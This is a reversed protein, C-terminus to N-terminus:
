EPGSEFEYGYYEFIPRDKEYVLQRLEDDYYSSYHGHPSANQRNLGAIAEALADPVECCEGLMRALDERMHEMRGTSVGDFGPGLAQLLQQFFPGLGFEFEPRMKFMKRMTDAFGLTDGETVELFFDSRERDQQFHFWSM